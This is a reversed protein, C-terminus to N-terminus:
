TITYDEAVPTDSPVIFAPRLGYNYYSYNKQQQLKGYLNVATSQGSYNKVPSRLWWGFVASGNQYAIRTEDSCGNFYDLVLGDDLLKGTDSFGVEKASLLFVKTSLGNAGFKVGKTINSTDGYVYPIKVQKIISQISSDFYSLFTTNVYNHIYSSDYTSISDIAWEVKEIIDKMLLWTGNCSSDYFYDDPNGHQVIIFDMPTGNVNLKVTSGVPLTSIPVGASYFQRAVGNIGIYGKKVKRAREGAPLTPIVAGVTFTGTRINAYFVKNVIDYMGIAGSPNKCPKLDRVLSGAVRIKTGYCRWIGRMLTIASNRYSGSSIYSNTFSGSVDGSLTLNTGSISFIVNTRDATMAHTGDVTINPMHWAWKSNYAGIQIMAGTSSSYSEGFQLFFNQASITTMNQIDMEIEVDSSGITVGTNICYNDADSAQIFELATYGTPLGYPVVEKDQYIGIYPQKIKRAVGNVGVYIKKAM